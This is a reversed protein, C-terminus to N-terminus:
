IAAERSIIEDAKKHCPICLCDLNDNGPFMRKHILKALETMDCPVIHHIELRAKGTAEEQKKTQVGECGCEECHKAGRKMIAAREPSWMWIKRLMATIRGVPTATLPKKKKKPKPDAM